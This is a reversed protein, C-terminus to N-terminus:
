SITAVTVPTKYSNLYFGTGQAVKGVAKVQYFYDNGTHGKYTVTFVKSNGSVFTPKSDTTLKFQYTKGAKVSLTNGTDIKVANSTTSTASFSIKVPFTKDVTNSMVGNGLQGKDNEGYALVSGDTKVVITFGNTYGSTYGVVYGDGCNVAAVGDMLKTPASDGSTSTGWTWLSGDTKVAASVTGGCSVSAVDDMMKTPLKKGGWTWLSGDTKIAATEGDCSVSVVNDMVKLPVDQVHSASGESDDSGGTGGGIIREKDTEGGNGMEGNNNVGWMWLSGDTKIAATFGDGCSVAVAGDMVKVPVSSDGSSGNGLQGLSNDGWMWLSGDTKIAATNGSSCSVAVVNDMVKAPADEHKSFLGWVWLSGDTKIAAINGPSCSVSVVKDMVKIPIPVTQCYASVSNGLEYKSNDGWMWLSGNKDIRGTSAGGASVTNAQGAKGTSYASVPISIGLCMVLALALSLIRKKM